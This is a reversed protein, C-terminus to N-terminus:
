QLARMMVLADVGSQQYYGRRRGVTQFGHRAYLQQARENDARVELSVRPARRAAAEALLARLMATGVGRGQWADAVGLTQVCAEDPYVALGAYGVLEHSGDVAMLYHRTDPQALESWFMEETWCEPEFLARELAMVGPLAWWRLTELV